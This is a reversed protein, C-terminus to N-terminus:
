TTGRQQYLNEIWELAKGSKVEKPGVHLVLWGAQQLLYAREFSAAFRGENKHAGGDIELALKIEPWVCDGTYKRHELYRYGRVPMPLVKSTMVQLTMDQELQSPPKPLKVPKPKKPAKAAKPKPEPKPAPTAPAEHASFPGRVVRVHSRALLADLAAQDPLRFSM